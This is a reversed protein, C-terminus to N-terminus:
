RWADVIGMCGPELVKPSSISAPERLRSAIAEEGPALHWEITAGAIDRLAGTEALRDIIGYEAGEADLKLLIPAGSTSASAASVDDADAIHITVPQMDEPKIRYLARSVRRSTPSAM